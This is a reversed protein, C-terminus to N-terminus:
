NDRHLLLNLLREALKDGKQAAENYWYQALETDKYTGIGNEFYMGVRCMAETLGKKALDLCLQFAKSLDQKCGKPFDYCLVLEYTAQLHGKKAALQYCEFAKEYKKLEDYIKAAEFLNDPIGSKKLRRANQKQEMRDLLFDLIPTYLLNREPTHRVRQPRVNSKFRPTLYRKDFM